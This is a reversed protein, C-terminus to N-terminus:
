TASITQTMEVLILLGCTIFLASFVLGFASLELVRQRRQHESRVASITGLVPLGVATRLKMITPYTTHLNAVVFAFAVGAALGAFLVSGLLLPRNPASPKLPVQPPDIIRFQVKDTKTDVDQVMRAEERSQLLQEFQAKIVSYDRNLRAREAEINPVQDAKETLDIIDAELKAKRNNLSALKTEVDVLRIRIDEYIPSGTVAAPATGGGESAAQARLAEMQKKVTAVDPHQDTFGRLYLADLQQQMGFYRQAYPGSLAGASQTSAPPAVNNLQRQLEGRIVAADKIEIETQALEERSKRLREIFNQDGPLWGVYRREFESRRREAQELQREYDALQEDIFRRTESLTNRLVGLNGEFFITLLNQVIRKSLEANEQDSLSPRGSEYAIWFLDTGQSQLSINKQLDDILAEMESEDTITLDLDVRHIVKELNPRSVLTRRMVEVQKLPNTDISKVLRQLLTNTDVYIRAESRYRDPIYAVVGWGIVCVVWMAALGYWRKRWISYLMTMVQEYVDSM